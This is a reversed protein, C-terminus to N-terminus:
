WRREWKDCKNQSSLVWEGTLKCYDKGYKEKRYIHKCSLCFQNRFECDIM